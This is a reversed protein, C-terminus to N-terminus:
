QTLIQTARAKLAAPADRAIPSGEALGAAVIEPIERAVAQRMVEERLRDMTGFAHNVTGASVGAAAAVAERTVARFGLSIAVALAGDLVRSHRAAVEQAAREQRGTAGQM